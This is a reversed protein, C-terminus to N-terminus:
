EILACPRIRYQICLTCILHVVHETGFWSTNILIKNVKQMCIEVLSINHTNSKGNVSAILIDLDLNSDPKDIFNAYKDNGKIFEINTILCVARLFKLHM